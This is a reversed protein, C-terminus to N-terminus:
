FAQASRAISRILASLQKRLKRDRIRQFAELARVADKDRHATSPGDAPRSPPPSQPEGFFFGVSVGFINAFLLLKISGVQNAGSEYKQVQQFTVGVKHALDKQSLGHRLRLDRIRAGIAANISGDKISGDRPTTAAPVEPTCLIVERGKPMAGRM